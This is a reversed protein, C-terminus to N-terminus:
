DSTDGWTRWRPQGASRTHTRVIFRPMLGEPIAGEYHYQFRLAASAEMQKATSPQDKDLREPILYRDGEDFPFCLEFKRMLDILFGHRETPYDDGDLIAALDGHLM